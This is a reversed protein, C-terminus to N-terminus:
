GRPAATEVAPDHRGRRVIKIITGASVPTTAREDNLIATQELDLGQPGLSEVVAGFTGSEPAPVFHVRDASVKLKTSDRLAAISRISTRIQEAAADTDSRSQGLVQLFQGPRYGVFGAILSTRGGQGSALISGIWASYDRFIESRGTAELIYGDRRLSEVYLAPTLTSDKATQLTVEMDAGSGQNRAIVASPLNLKEWGDPFIMQFALDPHYFRNGEFFGARPDDGFILGETHRRYAGTDIVLDRRASAASAQALQLTRIERDGPDPHTQLFSPLSSGSREEVRKLMAYTPPIERPDYGARVAYQVGLQDAQSEDDRSYKLFLLSLGQQALLTDPRFADVFVAGALLGIMSLDSRTIQQATHRATVHGIEHGLVGALQAESNLYALIGRTIYIYGGPLAFANVVPSDLVRFHWTLGPRESVSALKQGVSDVYRQVTSDGYLGYQALIAPDAERGMAIEKSQSVFSIQRQGTAPNTACGAVLLLSAAAAPAAIRRFSRHSTAIM